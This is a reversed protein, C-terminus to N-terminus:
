WPLDSMRKQLIYPSTYANNHPTFKNKGLWAATSGGGATRNDEGGTLLQDGPGKVVSPRQIFLASPFLSVYAPTLQGPAASVMIGSPSWNAEMASMTALILLMPMFVHTLNALKFVNLSM